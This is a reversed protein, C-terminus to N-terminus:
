LRITPKQAAAGPKPGPLQLRSTVRAGPSRFELRGSPGLRGEMQSARTVQRNATRRLEVGGSAALSQRQWNWLCRSARLSGDAQDVECGSGITATATNLDVQLSQGKIRLQQFAARFPTASHLTNTTLNISIAQGRLWAKQSPDDLVVPAQFLLTREQTNGRLGSATLTQIQRSPLTRVVKIAGKAELAGSTPMWDAQQLLVRVPSDAAGSGLRRLEPKGRLELTDRDILFRARTALLRLNGDIAEANRDLEIRQLRPYWRMRTAQITVPDPGLRRIQAKGELQIVQGDNLLTGHSAQVTYRPQGLAYITGRLDQAQAVRRSLDYRAEPSTVAWATRGQPDQQRLNLSRFVFPTVRTTPAEPARAGCGGISLGLLGVLLLWRPSRRTCFVEKSVFFKKRVSFKKSV